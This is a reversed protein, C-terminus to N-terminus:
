QVEKKGTVYEYILSKKYTELETILQEKKTILTDIEICKKDVYNAIEKQEELSPILFKIQCFDDFALDWQGIRLGGSLREYEPLYSKNRMLHHFYPKYIKNSEISCIHYAPSVIGRYNSIAMSGQWAKMKNIVFDGVEVLKYSDTDLSTVNHNDDRSDKPVVGLDRYLSLVTENGFGKISKWKLFPKLKCVEWEEPIEGIWAIGSDKMKRNPRIGKTVAQTIIANKLLKYEEISKRTKTLVTDIETCQKDLFTAIKQQEPLPPFTYPINLLDSTNLSSRVGDDGMQNFIERQWMSLFFYEGYKSDVGEKKHLIIYAPSVIGTYPSLGVRSTSINQLDILKFVLEDTSLIQYGSFEEPQLGTSDDKPRKIVGNLTLALREYEAAKDGVVYKHNTYYNKTRSITWNEPISGIWDIGSDKMKRAM